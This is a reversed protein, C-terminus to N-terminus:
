WWWYIPWIMASGLWQRSVERHLLAGGGEAWGIGSICVWECHVTLPNCIEKLRIRLRKWSNEPNHTIGHCLKPQPKHGIWTVKVKIDFKTVYKIWFLVPWARRKEKSYFRDGFEPSILTFIVVHIPCSNRKRALFTKRALFLSLSFANCNLLKELCNRQCHFITDNILITIWNLFPGWTSDAKKLVGILKKLFDM